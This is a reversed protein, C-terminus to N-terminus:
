TVAQLDVEIRLHMFHAALLFAVSTLQDNEQVACCIIEAAAAVTEQM